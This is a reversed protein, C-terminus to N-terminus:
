HKRKGRDISNEPMILMMIMEIMIMIMKMMIMQLMIMWRQMKMIMMKCASRAPSKPRRKLLQWQM